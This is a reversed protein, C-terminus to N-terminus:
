TSSPVLNTIYNEVLKDSDETTMEKPIRELVLDFTTDVLESRFKERARIIQSDVKRKAEALMYQSQQEADEIIQQKRKEGQAVIREKVLTFREEGEQLMKRAEQIQLEAKEKMDEAKLIEKEMELKKGQIFDRIPNKLLKYLIAALIAFNVWMMIVDYTPRWDAAQDAALVPTVFFFLIASSVTIGGFSKELLKIKKL